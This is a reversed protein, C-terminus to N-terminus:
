YYKVDSIRRGGRSKMSQAEQEAAEREVDEANALVQLSTATLKCDRTPLRQQRARSVKVAEEYARKQSGAFGAFM